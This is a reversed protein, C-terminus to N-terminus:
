KDEVSSDIVWEDSLGLLILAKDEWDTDISWDYPVEFTLKLENENKSYTKSQPFIKTSIKDDLVYLDDTNVREVYGLKKINEEFKLELRVNFCHAEDWDSFHSFYRDWSNAM